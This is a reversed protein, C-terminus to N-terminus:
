LKEEREIMEAFGAVMRAQINYASPLFTMSGGM